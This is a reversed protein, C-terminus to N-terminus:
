NWWQDKIKEVLEAWEHYVDTASINQLKEKKIVCSCLVFLEPYQFDNEKFVNFVELIVNIFRNVFISYDDELMILVIGQLLLNEGREEEILCETTLKALMTNIDHLEDEPEESQGYHGYQGFHSM